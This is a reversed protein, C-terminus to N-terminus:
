VVVTTTISDMNKYSNQQVNHTHEFLMLTIKKKYQEKVTVKDATQKEDHDFCSHKKALKGAADSRIPKPVTKASTKCFRTVRRFLMLLVFVFFCFVRRCM